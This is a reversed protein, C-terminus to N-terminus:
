RRRGGSSLLLLAAIAGIYVVTTANESIWSSATSVAGTITSQVDGLHSQSATYRGPRTVGRVRSPPGASRRRITVVRSQIM